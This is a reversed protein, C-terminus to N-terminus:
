STIAFFSQNLSFCTLFIKDINHNKLTARGPKEIVIDIRKWLSILFDFISNLGYMNM